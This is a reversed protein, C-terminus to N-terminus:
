NKRLCCRWRLVPLVSLLWKSAHIINAWPQADNHFGKRELSAGFHITLFGIEAERLLLAYSKEITRGAITALEFALPYSNKIDIFENRINMDFHVRQMATNLHM